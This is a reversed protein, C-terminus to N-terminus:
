FFQLVYLVPMVFLLSDFRDLIGGHGPLIRGFDKIDYQRKMASAVLDGLQGATSVVLLFVFLVAWSEFVTFMLQFTVGVIVALVIGGLSGEITKKPSIAPWLKRRGFSRGAFYAGTDTAWIAFLALFLFLAGESERAHVFFHFGAGVYFAGFILLGCVAFSVRNKTAVPVLMLLWAAAIFALVRSELSLGLADAWSPPLFTILSVAIGLVGAASLAPLKLMRAIEIAGTITMATVLAAFISGGAIVAAIFGVAGIVGTIIRQKM